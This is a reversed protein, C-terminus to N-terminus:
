HSRDPIELLLVLRLNEAPFKGRDDPRRPRFLIQPITNIQKFFVPPFPSIMRITLPISPAHLVARIGRAALDNGGRVISAFLRKQGTKGFVPLLLRYVAFPEPVTKGTEPAPSLSRNARKKAFFYFIGRKKM